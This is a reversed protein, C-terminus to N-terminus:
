ASGSASGPAPPAARVPRVGWQQNEHQVVSRVAAAAAKVRDAKAAKYREVAQRLKALRAEHHPTGPVLSQDRLQQVALLCAETPRLQPAAAASPPRLAAAIDTATARVADTTGGAKGAESMRAELWPVAWAALAPDPPAALAPFLPLPGAGGGGPAGAHAGGAGALSPAGAAESFLAEGDVAICLAALAVQLPSSATLPADSLPAADVAAFARAQIADWAAVWAPSHPPAGGGGGGAAVGDAACAQVAGRLLAALPRYGHYVTLEFSLGKLLPVENRLYWPDADGAAGAGVAWVPSASAAPAPAGGGGGLAGCLIAECEAAWTAELPALRRRTLDDFETYPCAEVKIALFV